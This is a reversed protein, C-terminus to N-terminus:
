KIILQTQDFIHVIESKQTCIRSTRYYIYRLQTVDDDDDTKCGEWRRGSETSGKRKKRVM